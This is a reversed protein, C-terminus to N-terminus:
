ARVLKAATLIQRPAHGREGCFEQRLKGAYRLTDGALTYLAREELDVLVREPFRSPTDRCEEPYFRRRLGDGPIDRFHLNVDRLAPFGPHDVVARSFIWFACRLYEKPLWASRMGPLERGGNNFAFDLCQDDPAQPFEEVITRQWSALLADAAASTDHLQVGGSCFLQRESYLPMRYGCVFFRDHLKRGALEVDVPYFAENERDALWNYVAFTTRKRVLREILEPRERVVCDADMYLVPRRQRQLIHRIFNPKTYAPDPTGNISISQHVTPVECIVHAIRLAECSRRLREAPEAHSATHMAAVVFGADGPGEASRVISLPLPMAAAM